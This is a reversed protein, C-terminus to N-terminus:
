KNDNRICMSAFVNANIDFAINRVSGDAFCTMLSTHPGGFQFNLLKGIKGTVHIDPAIPAVGRLIDWDFGPNYYAENEVQNTDMLAMNLRREGVMLTCSLGDTIDAIRCPGKRTRQFVGDMGNAFDSGVNGGYDCRSQGMYLRVERRQPCTYISIPRTPSFSEQEIYPLIFYAWSYDSEKMTGGIYSQTKFNWGNDGACPFARKVDHYAHLGIGIQKLNNGCTITAAARRAFQIAPLLLAILISLTAIVVLVEILSWAPRQHRHYQSAHFVTRGGSQAM